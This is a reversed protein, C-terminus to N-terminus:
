ALFWDRGTGCILTQNKFGAATQSPDIEEGDFHEGPASQCSIIRNDGTTVCCTLASNPWQSFAEKGVVPRHQLIFAPQRLPPSRQLLAVRRPIALQLSM